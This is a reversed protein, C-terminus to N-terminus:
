KSSESMDEFYLHGIFHGAERHIEQRLRAAEIQIAELRQEFEAATSYFLEDEYDLCHAIGKHSLFNREKKFIRLDRVLEDNTTLKKFTEILRELSSNEYDEGRINFTMRSGICKRILDFASTIYLKLEQEVLQCGSLAHAIKLYFGDENM